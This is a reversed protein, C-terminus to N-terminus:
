RHLNLVQIMSRVADYKARLSSHVAMSDIEASVLDLQRYLSSREGFSRANNIRRELARLFNSREDLLQRHTDIDDVVRLENIAQTIEGAVRHAEDIIWHQRPLQQSVIRLNAAERSVATLLRQIETLEEMTTALSRLGKAEELSAAMRDLEEEATLAVSFENILEAIRAKHAHAGPLFAIAVVDEPTVQTRDNIAAAAQALRIALVATRPSIVVKDQRLEVIVRALMRQMAPSITATAARQQLAAIDSWTTTSAECSRNGIVAAFLNAFANEDYTTWKVELQIPFREILAAIEPGGEAIQMPSHNTAAAIVRTHMPFRQHGNRLERATLTDKLSTLVRPPADFLEEFVAIPRPLFSLEPNFQITAGEHRNLADFDLGGYLEETSTGQGFSKVYPDADTIAGFVATLFESKGHGGPGSFILNVGAALALSVAERMEDVYVFSRTASAVWPLTLTHMSAVTTTAPDAVSTPAM